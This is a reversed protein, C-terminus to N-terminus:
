GEDAEEYDEGCLGDNQNSVESEVGFSVFDYRDLSDAHLGGKFVPLFGDYVVVDWFSVQCVHDYDEAVCVDAV